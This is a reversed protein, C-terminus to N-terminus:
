SCPLPHLCLFCLTTYLQSQPFSTPFALLEPGLFKGQEKLCVGRSEREPDLNIHFHGQNEPLSLYHRSHTLQEILDTNPHLHNM